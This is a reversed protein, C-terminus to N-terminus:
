RGAPQVADFYDRVLRAYGAPVRGESIERLAAGRADEHTRTATAPDAGTTIGHYVIGGDAQRPEPPTAVPALELLDDADEAPKPRPGAPERAPSETMAARLRQALEAEHGAREDGDALANAMRDLEEQAARLASVTEDDNGEQLSRATRRIAETLDPGAGKEAMTRALRRLEDRLELQRAAGTDGQLLEREIRFFRLRLRELEADPEAPTRMPRGAPGAARAAAIARGTREAELEAAVEGAVEREMRGLLDAPPLL